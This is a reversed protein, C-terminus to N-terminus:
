IPFFYWVTNPRTHIVLGWQVMAFNYDHPGCNRKDEQLCPYFGGQKPPSSTNKQKKKKKKRKSGAPSIAPLDEIGVDEDEHIASIYNRCNFTTLGHRGLRNLETAKTLATVERKLAPYITTGVEVLIDADTALRFLARIDDASDGNQDPYPGYADGRRGGAAQRSGSPTMTGYAWAQMEARRKVSRVRILRHNHRLLELVKRSLARFRVGGVFEKAGGNEPNRYYFRVIDRGCRRFVEPRHEISELHLDNFPHVYKIVRKRPQKAKSGARPKPLPKPKLRDSPPACTLSVGKLHACDRKTVWKKQICREEPDLHACRTCEGDSAESRRGLVANKAALGHHALKKARSKEKRRSGQTTRSKQALPPPGTSSAPLFFPARSSPSSPSAGDSEYGLDSDTDTDSTSAPLFFPARSSPSSPSAGDSEYGLDSDTDTDSTSAPLFFPARSSPSSPSAGDSEYGLDGDTDTDRQLRHVQRHVERICRRHLVSEAIAVRLQPHFYELLEVSGEPDTFVEHAKLMRFIKDSDWGETQYNLERLAPVLWLDCNVKFSSKSLFLYGAMPNHRWPHMESYMSFFLLFHMPDFALKVNAPNQTLDYAEQTITAEVWDYILRGYTHKWDHFRFSAEVDPHTTELLNGPRCIERLMEALGSDELAQRFETTRYVRAPLKRMEVLDNVVESKDRFVDEGDDTHPYFFALIHSCWRFPRKSEEDPPEAVKKRFVRLSSPVQKEQVFDLVDLEQPDDLDLVELDEVYDSDTPSKSDTPGDSDSEFAEGEFEDDLSDRVELDDLWCFDASGSVLLEEPSEASNSLLEGGLCYSLWPQIRAAWFTSRLHPTVAKFVADFGSISRSRSRAARKFFVKFPKEKFFQRDEEFPQLRPTWAGDLNSM